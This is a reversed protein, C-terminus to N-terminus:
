YNLRRKKMFLVKEKINIKNSKIVNYYNPFKKKLRKEKRGM